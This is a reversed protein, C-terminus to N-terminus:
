IPHKWPGLKQWEFHTKFHATSNFDQIKNSTCGQWIVVFKKIRLWYETNIGPLIDAHDLRSMSYKSKAPAFVLIIIYNGIWIHVMIYNTKITLFSPKIECLKRQFANTRLFNIKLIKISNWNCVIFWLSMYCNFFLNNLLYFPTDTWLGWSLASITLFKFFLLHIESWDWGNDSEFCYCKLFSLNLM